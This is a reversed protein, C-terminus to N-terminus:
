RAVRDLADLYVAAVRDHLAKVREDVLQRAPDADFWEITAKIGETFPVVPAFEPVLTRIKTNDFVLSHVKDGWLSGLLEPDAAIVADTPVHLIRPTAGAARGIVDYIDNWTLVEDSTIHVAEGIADPHGLLGLLGVAFDSNHTLTWLSTGDGPIIIPAGRRMRDIITYPRDWSSLCAPVQTPGYTLSPRVITVPFGADHAEGLLRECAIKNQSYEWFPNGLPTGAETVLFHVPPKQYVSASSIFVYQNTRGTFLAVDRAIQDPTFGIWQVVADFSEEGLAARVADADALDAVLRKVGDPVPLNHTHGRNLVSVEHGREVALDLCASSILGTGGIYLLRVSPM